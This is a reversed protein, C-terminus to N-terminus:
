LEAANLMDEATAYAYGLRLMLRVALSKMETDSNASKVIALLLKRIHMLKLDGSLQNINTRECFKGMDVGRAQELLETLTGQLFGKANTLLFDISDVNCMLISSFVGGMANTAGMDTEQKTAHELFDIITDGGKHRTLLAATLIGIKGQISSEFEVSKENNEM